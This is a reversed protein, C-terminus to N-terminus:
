LHYNQNMGALDPPFKLLIRTLKFGATNMHHPNLFFVKNNLIKIFTFMETNFDISNPLYIWKNHVYQLLYDRKVWYALGNLLYESDEVSIAQQFKTKRIHTWVM